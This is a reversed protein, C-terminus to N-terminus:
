GRTRSTRHIQTWDRRSFVATVPLLPSSISLLRFLVFVPNIELLTIFNHSRVCHRPRPHAPSSFPSLLLLILFLPFRCMGSNRVIFDANSITQTRTKKLGLTKVLDWQSTSWSKPIIFNVERFFAKKESADYLLDSTRKFLDQHSFFSRRLFFTLLPPAFCILLVPLSFPTAIVIFCVDHKVQFLSSFPSLPKVCRFSSVSVLFM